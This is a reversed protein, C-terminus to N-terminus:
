RRGRTACLADRDRASARRDAASTSSSRMRLRKWRPSSAPSCRRRCTIPRQAVRPAARDDGRRGEPVRHARRGRARPARSLGGELGLVCCPTSRRPAYGGCRTPSASSGRGATTTPSRADGCGDERRQGSPHFDDADFFPGASSEALAPGVTTKGCGCVGMVRRDDDTGPRAGPGHGGFGKRMMALLKDAYDGKGQSAFRTMLALSLVPAPVGQEMAEIADLARRGFRRGGARDRRTPM